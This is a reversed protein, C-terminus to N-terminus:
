GVDCGGEVLDDFKAWPFHMLDTVLSSSDCECLGALDEAPARLEEPFNVHDLAFVLVEKNALPSTSCRNKDRAIRVAWAHENSQKALGLNEYVHSEKCPNAWRAGFRFRIQQIATGPSLCLFRAKAEAPGVRLLRLAGMRDAGQGTSAQYFTALLDATRKFRSVNESKDFRLKLAKQVQEAIPWEENVCRAAALSFAAHGMHRPDRGRTNLWSSVEAQAARYETLFRRQSAEIDSYISEMLYCMVPRMRKAEAKLAAIEAPANEPRRKIEIEDIRKALEDGDSPITAGNFIPFGRVFRTTNMNSNNVGDYISLTLQYIESNNAVNLSRESGKNAEGLVLPMRNRSLREKFLAPTQGSGSEEDSSASLGYTMHLAERLADQKGSGSAGTPYPFAISHGFYERCYEPSVFLRGLLNADLLAINPGRWKARDDVYHAREDMSPLSTADPKTFRFPVYRSTDSFSVVYGVQEQSSPSFIRGRSDTAIYGENCIIGHTTVVVGDDPNPGPTDFVRLNQGEVQRARAQIFEAIDQLTERDSSIIAGADSLKAYFGRPSASMDRLPVTCRYAADAGTESKKLLSLHASKTGDPDQSIAEVEPIANCITYRLGTKDDTYELTFNTNNVSFGPRVKPIGVAPLDPKPEKEPINTGEFARRTALAARLDKSKVQKVGLELIATDVARLLRDQSTRNALLLERREDLLSLEAEPNQAFNIIEQLVRSFNNGTASNKVM